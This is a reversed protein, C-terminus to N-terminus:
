VALGERFILEAFQADKNITWCKKASNWTAAFYCKIAARANYTNGSIENGNLKISGDEIGYKLSLEASHMAVEDYYGNMMTRKTM